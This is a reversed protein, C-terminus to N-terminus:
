ILFKCYEVCFKSIEINDSIHVVVIDGINIELMQQIEKDIEIRDSSIVSVETCIASADEKMFKRQWDELDLSTYYIELCNNKEYVVACLIDKGELGKIKYPLKISHNAELESFFIKLEDCQINELRAVENYIEGMATFNKEDAATIFEQILRDLYKNSKRM